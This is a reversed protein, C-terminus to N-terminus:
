CGFIYRQSGNPDMQVGVTKIGEKFDSTPPYAINKTQPL